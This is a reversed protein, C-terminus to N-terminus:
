PWKNATRIMEYAQNLRKFRAEAESKPLDSVDPHVEFALKRFAARVEDRSARPTVGLLLYSEELPTRPVAPLPAQPPGQPIETSRVSSSRVAPDGEFDALLWYGKLAPHKITSRFHRIQRIPLPPAYLPEVEERSISKFRVPVIAPSQGQQQFTYAKETGLSQFPVYWRDAPERQGPPPLLRADLIFLSPIGGNTANELIRRVKPTKIPASILHIQIAIGAWTHVVLDVDRVPDAAVGGQGFACRQVNVLPTLQDRLWRAVPHISLSM